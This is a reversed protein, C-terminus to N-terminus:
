IILWIFSYGVITGAAILMLFIFLNEKINKNQKLLFVIGLGANVCLGGLLASFRLGGMVYLETLIVSSACNPILGILVTLIPQAWTSSSLFAMLKEEGVWIDTFCGFLLNILFIFGFIKLSHLLPHLWNFKKSELHHHCCGDHHEAPESEIVNVSKQKFILKFLGLAIYGVIIAIVIKAIILVILSKISEPHALLIPIAEDSTAIFVALLAGVSIIGRSFLDSSVVSFGCQPISGLLAGFVPSAKGKLFKNNQLKKAWKYEIFEILYYALLLIPLIILSDKLADVFVWWYSLLIEKLNGGSYGCSKDLIKLM